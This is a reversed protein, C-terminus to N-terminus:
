GTTPPSVCQRRCVFFLELQPKTTTAALLLGFSGDGGDDTIDAIQILNTVAVADLNIEHLFNRLEEKTVKGDHDAGCPECVCVVRM